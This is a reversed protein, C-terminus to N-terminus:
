PMVVVGALAVQSSSPSPVESGVGMGRGSGVGLGVSYGVGSGVDVAGVLVPNVGYGVMEIFGVGASVKPGV